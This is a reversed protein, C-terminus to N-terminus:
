CDNTPVDFRPFIGKPKSIPTGHKIPSSELHDFTRENEPVGLQDLIKNASSPIIPQYLIAVRRLAEMTVYLVTAMRETDTKRLVWPEMQDIYQNAEWVVAVVAEVYKHIAQSSIAEATKAHLAGASRLLKEDDQTYPGVESPVAKGCNKFVLMLTRQCLNGVENSLNANVKYIMKEHSFDGDAGFTVDAMLFFRTADVGYQEVLQLPDIVNGVSKSMKEGDITWWGHAFVRKPLPLDAAMLFAPWYVAHFRLIDKGVVHLAAPWYKDMNSKAAMNPYGLASLYNALADMWVYMVHDDDDPVPVGWKFSTRSVSLDRLGSKVFSIVENRRASPAVFDPEKDYLQLLQLEFDSLRFFYSPEKVMWEVDSGTPAKGEVLESEMYYCEDRVSYWGEYNDLYIYGKDVLVRWLHQVAERHHLETTRVFAGNSVNLVTLLDRFSDSVDDVFVQPEVGAAKASDEVKQGHEDTGSQFFVERGSLRMFRAIVDCAISTYAHGVHPKDNVYYIPTTIQYPRKGDDFTTPPIGTNNANTLNESTSTTATSTFSQRYIIHASCSPISPRFLPSSQRSVLCPLM